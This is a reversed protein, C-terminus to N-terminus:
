CAEFAAQLWQIKNEADLLVADFRCLRTSGGSLYHAAAATLRQQKRRDISVAADSLRRRQRVEVFVLMNGHEAIIDIEGRRCQYNTEIVRLGQAQLFAAALAEAQEGVQRSM